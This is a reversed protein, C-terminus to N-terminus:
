TSESVDRGFSSITSCRDSVLELELSLACLVLDQAIAIKSSVTRSCFDYKTIMIQVAKLMSVRLIM